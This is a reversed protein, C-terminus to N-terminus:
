SDTQGHEGWKHAENPLDYVYVDLWGLKSEILEKVIEWDGGGLGCGIRPMHISANVGSYNPISIKRQVEGLSNIWEVIKDFCECLSGYHVARPSSFGHQAIMNAIYIKGHSDKVPVMQIDGLDFQAQESSFERYRREPEPWKKSLATVFGAGWGGQDNCIHAIIRLGGATQPETADGIVHKIM